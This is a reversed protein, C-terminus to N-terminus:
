VRGRNDIWGRSYVAIDQSAASARFRVESSTNTRHRIQFINVTDGKADFAPSTNYTAVPAVDPEDPSSVKIVGTDTNIVNLRGLAVCKVGTPSRMPVLTASVGITSDFVETIESMFEDGDQVFPMLGGASRFFVAGIRRKVTYNTPMTPTTPSLSFLVDVVGTDLRKIGFVHYWTSTAVVGTDLGGNGSGVVWTADIRKTLASILTMTLPPIADTACEGIAIDIDNVADAVNNSLTLGHLYGRQTTVTTSAIRAIEYWVSNARWLVLRDGAVVVMNVAGSLQLTAGHTITPAGTFRLVVVTGDAKSSVATIGTSGTVVFSNGDSGLPLTAAAVIDAGQRWKQTHLGDLAAQIDAAATATGGDALSVPTAISGASVVASWDMVLPGVSAARLFRGATPEPLDPADTLSAAGFKFIRNFLERHQQMLMMLKGLDDEIRKPPFDEVQYVSSQAYDTNGLIVVEVNAGPATVFVVTGGGAVGVGTVTYHVNLTQLAGALYVALQTESKIGFGYAFSTVSANGLYENRRTVDSIIM